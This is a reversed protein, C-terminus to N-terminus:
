PADSPSITETAVREASNLSRGYLRAVKVVAERAAKVKEHVAIIDMKFTSFTKKVEERLNMEDSTDILYEKGAQATIAETASSIITKAEEIAEKLDENNEGEEQRALVKEEIRELIDMIKSLVNELRETHSVNLENIRTDISEVMSRKNEDRITKVNEKFEERQMQFKERSEERKQNMAERFEDGRKKMVEPAEVETPETEEAFVSTMGFAPLFLILTTFIFIRIRM